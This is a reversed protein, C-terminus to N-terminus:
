LGKVQEVLQFIARQEGPTADWWTPIVRRTIVLVHGPNVPYRDYIAFSLENAALWDTELISVFPSM